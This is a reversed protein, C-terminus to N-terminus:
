ILFDVYWSGSQFLLLRLSKPCMSAVEKLILETSEGRVIGGYGVQGKYGGYGGYAGYDLTTQMDQVDEMTEMKQM